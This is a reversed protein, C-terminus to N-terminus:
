ECRMRRTWRERGRGRERGDDESLRPPLVLLLVLAGERMRRTGAPPPFADDENEDENEDESLRPPLVLLLVLVFRYRVVGLFEGARKMSYRTM